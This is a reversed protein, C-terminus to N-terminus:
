GPGSFLTQFFAETGRPGSVRASLRYIVSGPLAQPPAYPKLDSGSNNGTGVTQVCHADSSPGAQDCMREIVYRITVSGNEGTTIVNSAAGSLLATPFGQANAALMSASYNNEADDAKLDAIAGAAGSGATSIAQVAQAVVKDSQTVLDRRFALNGASYLSSNVSRVAIVGGIFLIALIILAFFMAVGRQRGQRYLSPAAPPFPRRRRSPQIPTTM